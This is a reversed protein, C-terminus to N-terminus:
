SSYKSFIYFKLKKFFTSYNNTCVTVSLVTAENKKIIKYARLYFKFFWAYKVQVSSYIPLDLRRYFSLSIVTLKKFFNSECIISAIM